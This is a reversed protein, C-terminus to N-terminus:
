SGQPPEFTEDFPQGLERGSPKTLLHGAYFVVFLASAVWHAVAMARRTADATAVQLLYGSLVMPAIAAMSWVGTPRRPAFRNRFKAWIHETFIWGFAFILFPAILVHLSLLLPQMPHNVVAFPDSSRMGYKMWAFVIGTGATLVLCLQLYILQWRSM